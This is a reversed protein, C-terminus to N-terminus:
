SKVWVPRLRHDKWDRGGSYSSNCVDVVDPTTKIKKEGKIIVISGPALHFRLMTKIQMKRLTLSTSCTKMYKNTM